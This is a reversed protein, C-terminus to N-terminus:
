IINFKLEVSNGGFYQMLMGGTDNFTNYHDGYYIIIHESIDRIPRSRRRQSSLGGGGGGLRELFLKFGMNLMRENMRGM